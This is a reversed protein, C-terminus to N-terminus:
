RRTSPIILRAYRRPSDQGFMRAHQNQGTGSKSAAKARRLTRMAMWWRSRPSVDEKVGPGPVDHASENRIRELEGVM